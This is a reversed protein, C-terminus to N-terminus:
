YHSKLERAPIFIQGETLDGILSVRHPSNAALWACYAAVLADLETFSLVWEYPFNGLLLKHRTIEEFFRMPDPVNIDLEHLLLQRQLRGELTNKSQPNHNLLVAYAAQPYVEIFQLAEDDSPY